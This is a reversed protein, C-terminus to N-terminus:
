LYSIPIAMYKGIDATAIRGRAEQQSVAEGLNKMVGM